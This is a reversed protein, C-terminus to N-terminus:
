DPAKLGAGEASNLSEIWFGPAIGWAEVSSAGNASFLYM